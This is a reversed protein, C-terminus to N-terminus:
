DKWVVINLRNCKAKINFEEITKQVKESLIVRAKTLDRKSLAQPFKTVV